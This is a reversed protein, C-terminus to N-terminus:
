LDVPRYIRSWILVVLMDRAYVSSRFGSGGCEAWSCLAKSLNSGHISTWGFLSCTKDHVRFYRKAWHPPGSSAAHGVYFCACWLRLLEVRKVLESWFLVLSPLVGKKSLLFVPIDGRKCRLGSEWEHGVAADTRELWCIPQGDIGSRVVSSLLFITSGTANLM